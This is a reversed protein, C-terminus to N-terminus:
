TLSTLKTSSTASYPTSPCKVRQKSKTGVYMNEDLRADSGPRQKSRCCRFRLASSIEKSESSLM